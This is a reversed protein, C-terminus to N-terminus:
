VYSLKGEGAFDREDERENASECEKATMQSNRDKRTTQKNLSHVLNYFLIRPHVFSPTQVNLLFHNNM